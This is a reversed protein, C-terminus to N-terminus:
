KGKNGCLKPYLIAVCADVRYYHAISPGTIDDGEIDICEPCIDRNQRLQVKPDNFWRRGDLGAKINAKADIEDCVIFKNFMEEIKRAYADSCWQCGDTPSGSDKVFNDWDTVIETFNPMWAHNMWICKGEAYGFNARNIQDCAAQVEKQALTNNSQDNLSNCRNIITQKLKNVPVCGYKDNKGVNQLEDVTGYVFPTCIIKDDPKGNAGLCVSGWCTAGTPNDARHYESGCGTMNASIPRKNGDSVNIYKDTVPSIPCIELVAKKVIPLGIKKVEVLQPNVIYLISYSFVAILLGTVAGTIYTKAQSIKSSNGGSMVWMFGGYTIMFVSLLGIVGIIFKYIYSLYDGLTLCDVQIQSGGPFGPLPVNFIFNLPPAFKEGCRSSVPKEKKEEQAQALASQYSFFLGLIVVILFLIKATKMYRWNNKFRM